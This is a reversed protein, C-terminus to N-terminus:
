LTLKSIKNPFVYCHGFDKLAFKRLVSKKVIINVPKEPLQPSHSFHIGDAIAIKRKGSKRMGDAVQRLDLKGLQSLIYKKLKQKSVTMVELKYIDNPSIIQKNENTKANHIWVFTYYDTILSDDIFWGDFENSGYRSLASIELCFTPRPDNIYRASSQAKIDFYKKTGNDLTISVDAGAVQLSRDFILEASPAIRHFYNELLYSNIIKEQKEDNKRNPNIETM